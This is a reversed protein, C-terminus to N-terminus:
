VYRGPLRASWGGERQLPSPKVDGPRRGAAACAAYFAAQADGEVVFVRAPALQGLRVCHAYHFSEELLAELRAAIGPRAAGAPGLGPVACAALHLTYGPRGEPGGPEDPALFALGEALSLERRLAAVVGAVFGEHLKEGFRDLVLDEKGLFALCPTRRLFATVAVRDQLRYRYLGGGTTVVVSGEDGERLRAVPVLGRAGLDLEIWHSRIAIPRAGAFPFSVIAETAVLGKPQLAVGPLSAALRDAEPRAPGDAWASVLGLRPWIRRPDPGGRALERARHPDAPIAPLIADGAALAPSGEAVRRVLREFGGRLPALLLGLFSPNWVSLLRLERARLLHLLTRERWVELDQAHRLASPVALTREFIRRGVGGLYEADDEFGIRIGGPTTRAAAGAPSVSWYAPGALLEPTRLYLDALWPSLARRFEAALPAPYPVLKSAAASGSSPQFLRVAATTLVAPEGAAARAVYPEHADYTRPPVRARFVEASADPGVGHDRLFATRANAALIRRLVEEQARGPDDLAARFARWRPLMSAVIAGQALAAAADIV